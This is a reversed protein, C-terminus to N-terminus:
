VLVRHENKPGNKKEFLVNECLVFNRHTWSQKTTPFGLNQHNPENYKVDSGGCSASGVGSCRIKQDQLWPLWHDM